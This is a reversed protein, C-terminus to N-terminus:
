GRIFDNAFDLGKKQSAEPRSLSGEVVDDPNALDDNPMAV